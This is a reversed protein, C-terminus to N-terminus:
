ARRSARRSWLRPAARPAPRGHQDDLRLVRLMETPLDNISTAGRGSCFLEPQRSIELIDAHRTIAYYGDGAELGPIFDVEKFKRIPDERRLKQFAGEREPIPLSWFVVNSLDIDDLSTPEVPRM